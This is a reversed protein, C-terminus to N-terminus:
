VRCLASYLHHLLIKMNDHMLTLYLWDELTLLFVVSLRDFTFSFGVFDQVENSNKFQPPFLTALLSHVM